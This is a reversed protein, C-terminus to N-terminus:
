CLFINNTAWDMISPPSSARKWRATMGEKVWARLHRWLLPRSLHCLSRVRFQSALFEIVHVQRFSRSVPFYIKRYTLFPPCSVPNTDTVDKREWDNKLPKARLHVLSPYCIWEQVQPSSLLQCWRIVSLSFPASTTEQFFASNNNYGFSPISVFISSLSLFLSGLFTFLWEKCLSLLSISRKKNKGFLLVTLWM